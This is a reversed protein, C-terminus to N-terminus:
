VFLFMLMRSFSNCWTLLLGDGVVNEKIAEQINM